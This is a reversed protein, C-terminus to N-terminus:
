KLAWTFSIWGFIMAEAFILVHVPIHLRNSLFQVLEHSLGANNKTDSYVIGWGESTSHVEGCPPKELKLGGRHHLEAPSAPTTDHRLRPPPTTGIHM